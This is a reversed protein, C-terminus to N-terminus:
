VDGVQRCGSAARVAPLWLVSVGDLWVSVCTSTVANLVLQQRRAVGGHPIVRRSPRRAALHGTLPPRQQLHHLVDAVRPQRGRGGRGSPPARAARGAATLPKTTLLECRRAYPVAATAAARCCCRKPGTGRGGVETLMGLSWQVSSAALRGSYMSSITRREAGTPATTGPDVGTIAKPSGRMADTAVSPILGLRQSNQCGAGGGAAPVRMSLPAWCRSTLRSARPNDDM